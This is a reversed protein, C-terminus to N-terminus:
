LSLVCLPEKIEINDTLVTKNDKIQMVAVNNSQMNTSIIYDGVFDFDRPHVGHCSYLNLLKLKSGDFSLEAISEHGRNSAYILGNHIRIAGGTSTGKFDDPLIGQTDILEFKGDSYSFASVSSVLENAAFMYKGCDSFVIHRVGYGAPVKATSVANLNKDYVFVTDLGLDTVCIYKKDPTLGAYHTHPGDQRPLNPGKGSHTVTTKGMKTVSGSIYNVCYIEGKDACLHCAVEGKTSFIDTPNVLIGDPSIDYTVFGSETNDFPAKLIIHMKNNEAVMYMPCDMPTFDTKVLKGDASMNYKYIGGDKTCSAIYVTKNM